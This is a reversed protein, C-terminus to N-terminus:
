LKSLKHTHTNLYLNTTLRLKHTNEKLKVYNSETATNALSLTHAKIIM